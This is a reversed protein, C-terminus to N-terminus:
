RRTAGVIADHDRNREGCLGVRADAFSHHRDPQLAACLKAGDGAKLVRNDESWIVCVPVRDPKRELGAFSEVHEALSLLVRMQDPDRNADRLDDLLEPSVRNPETFLMKRASAAAIPRPTPIRASLACARAGRPPQPTLDV